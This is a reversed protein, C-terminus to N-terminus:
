RSSASHCEMCPEAITEPHLAERPQGALGERNKISTECQLAMCIGRGADNKGSDKPGNIIYAHSVKDMGIANQLHEIIQKHGIIDKFGAM